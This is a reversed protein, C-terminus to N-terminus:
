LTNKYFNAILLNLTKFLQNLIVLNITAHIDYISNLYLSKCLQPIVSFYFSFRLGKKVASIDVRKKIQIGYGIM